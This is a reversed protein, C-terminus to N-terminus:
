LFPVWRCIHRHRCVKDFDCVSLGNGCEGKAAAAAAAAEVAEFDVDCTHCTRRCDRYTLSKAEDYCFHLQCDGLKDECDDTPDSDRPNYTTAADNESEDKVLTSKFIPVKSYQFLGCNHFGRAFKVFGKDGWDTGWSNKVLLYDATYGVMTVAHNAGADETCKATADKYIGREYTYFRDTVHYAVAIAKWRLAEIHAEETNGIEQIEDVKAGVLGNEHKEGVCPLDNETYPPYDAATGWRGSVQAYTFALAPWGGDCGGDWNDWGQDNEEFTCDVGEQESFKRLTGTEIAYNTELAAVASFAWCAGCMGQDQITTVKGEDTWLWEEPTDSIARKKSSPPQYIKRGARKSDEIMATANLGTTWGRKEEESWFSFKNVTFEATEGDVDNEAAVMEVNKKFIKFRRIDQEPKFNFQMEVKFNEYLKRVEGDHSLIDKYKTNKAMTFSVMTLILILCVM